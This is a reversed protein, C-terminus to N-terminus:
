KEIDQALYSWLEGVENYDSWEISQAKEKSIAKSVNKLLETIEKNLKRNFYGPYKQKKVFRVFFKEFEDEEDLNIDASFDDTKRVEGEIDNQHDLITQALKNLQKELSVGFVNQVFEIFYFSKNNNSSLHEKAKQEIQTVLQRM